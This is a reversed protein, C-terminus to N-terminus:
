GTNAFFNDFINVIDNPNDVSKNNNLISTKVNGVNM